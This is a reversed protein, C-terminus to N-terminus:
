CSLIETIATIAADIETKTTTHGVSFRITGTPFTGLTKHASPACHLGVRTMIGYEADLRYAIDAIDPMGSAPASAPAGASAPVGASTLSLDRVPLAISVVGTRGEGAPKGILRLKGQRILPELGELLAETMAQEHALINAPGTEELFKLAANLGIIGPLNLTGPEFRDPLIDPVDETHSFSGTGGSLLPTLERALDDRIIFGGTGQPGLLSKHGTFALADIHDDTMSLPFLGATQASDVIFRLGHEQCFVGVEHIPMLTGCVNSATMMVVARTEPRLLNKMTDLCLTGDSLCPIRTFTIGPRTTGEPAGRDPLSGDKPAGVEQGLQNLPRMVANHEMSSVLVHDGPMLFGKLIINLSETINKTFIVNKPDPGDFLRCLASRTDFVLEETEYASEYGGRSINTGLETMFRCVAEPVCPPKPFTTAANDLYIKKTM